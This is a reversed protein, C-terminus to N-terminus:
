ERKERKPDDVEEASETVQSSAPSPTPVVPAQGQSIVVQVPLPGTAPQQAQSQAISELVSGSRRSLDLLEKLYDDTTRRPLQAAGPRGVAERAQCISRELVPWYVALRDLVIAKRESSFNCAGALSGVLREIGGEDCQCANFLSIPMPLQDPDLDVLLPAVRAPQQGTPDLRMAVAGAEFYVWPRDRLAEQTLCLIGFNSKELSDFLAKIWTVGTSLDQSSLFPVWEDHLRPLYERLLKAVEHSLSDEGSWSIFINMDAM